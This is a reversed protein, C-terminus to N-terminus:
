VFFLAPEFLYHVKYKIETNVEKTKTMVENLSASPKFNFPERLNRVLIPFIQKMTPRKEEEFLIYKQLDCPEGRFKPLDVELGLVVPLCEIPLAEFNSVQYERYESYNADVIEISEGKKSVKEGQPSWVACSPSIKDKNCYQFPEQQPAIKSFIRGLMAGTARKKKIQNIQRENLLKESGAIDTIGIVIKNSRKSTIQSTPTVMTLTKVHQNRQSSSIIQSPALSVIPKRGVKKKPARTLWSSQVYEFIEQQAKKTGSRSERKMANLLKKRGILVHCDYIYLSAM